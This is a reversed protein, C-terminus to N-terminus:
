RSVGPAWMDTSEEEEPLHGARARREEATWRRGVSVRAGGSRFGGGIYLGAVGGKGGKKERTFSRGLGIFQEVFVQLRRRQIQEIGIGGFTEAGGSPGLWRGWDKAWGRVGLSTMRRCTNPMISSARLVGSAMEAGTV